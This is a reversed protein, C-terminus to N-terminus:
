RLAYVKKLIRGSPYNAENVAVQDLGLPIAMEGLKLKGDLASIVARATLRVSFAVRLESSWMIGSQRFKRDMYTRSTLAILQRYAERNRKGKYDMSFPTSDVILWGRRALVALVDRSSRSNDNDAFAERLASLLTRSRSQEDLIFQPVGTASWPPAEAILLYNVRRQPIQSVYDRWKQETYHHIENLRVLKNRVDTRGFLAGLAALEAPYQHELGKM